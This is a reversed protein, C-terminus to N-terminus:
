APKPSSATSTKKPTTAVQPEAYTCSSRTGAGATTPERTTPRPATAIRSALLTRSM